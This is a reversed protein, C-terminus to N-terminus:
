EPIVVEGNKAAMKAGEAERVVQRVTYRGPKLAFRSTIQLGYRSVMAYTEDPLELNVLKQEGSVYEGNQNFIVTTVTLKDFHRGDAQRLTHM